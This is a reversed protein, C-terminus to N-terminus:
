IHRRTTQYIHVSTESSSATKMTLARLMPLLNTPFTSVYNSYV